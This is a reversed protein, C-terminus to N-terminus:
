FERRWVRIANLNELRSVYFQQMIRETFSDGSSENYQLITVEGQMQNLDM